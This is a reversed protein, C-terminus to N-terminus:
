QRLIRNHALKNLDEMKIQTLNHQKIGLTTLTILHKQKEYDSYYTVLWKADKKITEFVKEFYKIDVESISHGLVYVNEINSLKNFLDANQNIINETNKFAKTYYSLIESKASEYSYDHQDAMAERWLELEEENLNNPPEPDNEIFNTPDTGHGLIINSDNQKAKNHIYCISTDSIGYLKEISNTYNFNLLLSQPLIKIKKDDINKPYKLNLIFNNFNSILKETLKEIIMEMEIQYTHWDRDKFNNAAPNAISDSYDDLIQKYDLDALALEFTAWAAYEEDTIQANSLDPLGYYTLFLEYVENDKEALYKAFSQYKTDLGHYLDFGNGIIYLNRM